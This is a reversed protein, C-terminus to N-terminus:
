VGAVQSIVLPIDECRQKWRGLWASPWTRNIYPLHDVADEINVSLNDM